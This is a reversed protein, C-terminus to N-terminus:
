KWAALAEVLLRIGFGTPGIPYMPSEKKVDGVGAIDLHAWPITPMKTPAEEGVFFSLFAAGQIPHADRGASNVIDGHTGKIQARHEDWLPLHWLREGSVDAADFLQGRLKADSCFCGACYPGLAVVVGGTLTALDVVAQPKYTKTGYALADALILRGEADTNTIEATVGNTFQIIDDPRYAEQSIMNEVTPLLGIVPVDPKLQAIARMTGLVAMGGCKDYKMRTMSDGPKLSYGGTDFTVAKGVLLVPAKKKSAANKPSYELVILAPPTSGAKGVALIGGMGLKTMAKVDLVSVKLGVAKAMGKAFDVLYAPNAVNPPTAAIRRAVNVSEAITLGREAGARLASEFVVDLSLGSKVDGNGNGGKAAGKFADFELNAITIAEAIANGAVKPEVKGALVSEVQVSVATVKAAFAARVVKAGGTRLVDANVKAADGLGIVFIRSPSKADAKTPYLTTLTNKATSFEERKLAASIAGGSAADLAKYGEPVAVTKEFLAIVTAHSATKPLSSAIRINRYM